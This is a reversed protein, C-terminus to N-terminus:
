WTFSRSIASSVGAAHWLADGYGRPVPQDVFVLSRAYDGAAELYAQENGARLWM